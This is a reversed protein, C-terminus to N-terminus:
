GTVALTVGIGIMTVAVAADLVRWAV